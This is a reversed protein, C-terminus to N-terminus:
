FVPPTPAGTPTPPHFHLHRLIEAIRVEITRLEVEYEAIRQVTQAHVLEGCVQLLRHEEHRLARAAEHAKHRDPGTTKELKEIELKVYESLIKADKLLQEQSETEKELLSEEIEVRREVLGVEIELLRLADVDTVAKLEDLLRHLREEEALLEGALHQRKEDRLKQVTKQVRALLAAGRQLLVQREHELPSLTTPVPPRGTTPVPPRGTTPVPPRGTTPVPPRGTTPVPPRGTTPVPPRGTTPVPPRGTTPVPPRGTTPVPPRGTTPVPPRGTTPAPPKGTSPAPAGTPAACTYCLLAAFVLILKM